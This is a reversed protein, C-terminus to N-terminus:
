TALTNRHHNASSQSWFGQVPPTETKAPRQWFPVPFHPVVLRKRGEGGERRCRSRGAFRGAAKRLHRAPRRRASTRDAGSSHETCIDIIDIDGSALLESLQTTHRAIGFAAAAAAAKAADLDCVAAVEFHEPIMAYSELHGKGVGLGVVAVRLKKTM